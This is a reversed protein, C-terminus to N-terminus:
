LRSVVKLWNIMMKADTLISDYYLHLTDYKALNVEVMPRKNYILWLREFEPKLQDLLTKQENVFAILTELTELKVTGPIEQNELTNMAQEMRDPVQLRMSLLKIRDIVFKFLDLHDRHRTVTKEAQPFLKQCDQYIKALRKGRLTRNSLMNTARRELQDQWLVFATTAYYFRFYRNSEALKQHLKQISKDKTGYFQPFYVSDFWDRNLKDPNWSAEAAQAYSYWNFERYNECGGDGWSSQIAGIAGTKYGVNLLQNVNKSATECDPFIRGWNHLAPSVIQPYGSRQIAHARAYDAAPIYIWNIMVIDKPLKALLNPYELNFPMDAYMWTQKGFRDVIEKVKLIHQAFVGDKGIKAALDKSKGKGLDDTEDCGICFYPSPFVEALGQICDALFSYVEEVVPSLCWPNEPREALHNLSPIRLMREQHGLCEFIPVIEIQYQKAYAVLERAEDKTLAGRGLGIEPYKDFSFMDEIYPLYFNIKYQALTRIINKFDDLTSIQGRSIDDSVGRIKYLPYDEIIIQPLYIRNGKKEMLQLLTQVGYFMGRDTNAGIVVIPEMTNEAGPNRQQVIDIRLEPSGIAISYGEEGLKSEYQDFKGFVIRLGPENCSDEEQIPIAVGTLSKAQEQILHASFRQSETVPNPLIIKTNRDLKLKGSMLHFRRPQPIVPLIQTNLNSM